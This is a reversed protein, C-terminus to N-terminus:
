SRSRLARVYAYVMEIRDIVRDWSYTTEVAHRNHRGMAAALAPQQLVALLASALARADRAPVKFGGAADVIHAPGGADTVVVPKASAMAELLAMGFPEGFSPAAFVTARRMLGPIQSREVEGTFEISEREPMKAVEASVAAERGGAGVILLRANPMAQHVIAFAELLVYIGKRRETGGVFLITPPLDTDPASPDPEYIAPDIGHPITFMKVRMRDVGAILSEAAPTTLILAGAARQQLSAIFRRATAAFPLDITGMISPSDADKPWAGVYAGLVIPVRTGALALSVGTYVPNLQHIIDFPRLRHLRAYTSRVARMYGIRSALNAGAAKPPPVLHLNAPLTGRVDIEPAMVHVEHGRKALRGAVEFAVLGDGHARHNTFLESAHPVFIRLREGESTPRAAVM